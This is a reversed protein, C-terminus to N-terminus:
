RLGLIFGEFQAQEEYSVGEVRGMRKKGIDFLERLMGKKLEHRFHQLARWADEEDKDTCPGYDSLQPCIAPYCEALVHKKGEPKLTEQPWVEFDIDGRKRRKKERKKGEM